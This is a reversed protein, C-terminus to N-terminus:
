WEDGGELWGDLAAFLDEVPFVEDGKLMPNSDAGSKLIRLTDAPLNRKWRKLKKADASAWFGDTILVIKAAPMKGLLAILAGANACGECSVLSPPLEDDSKWDIISADKRWAVLKIETNAKGLRIYQEVARVTNRAILNKGWEFMSGSVDIIIYLPAKM